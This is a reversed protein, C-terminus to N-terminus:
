SAEFMGGGGVNAKRIPCEGTAMITNWDLTNQSVDSFRFQLLNIPSTSPFTKDLTSPKLLTDYIEHDLKRVKGALGEESVGGDIASARRVEKPLVAALEQWAKRSCKGDSRIPTDEVEDM